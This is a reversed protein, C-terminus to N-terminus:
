QRVSHWVKRFVSTSEEDCKRKQMKRIAPAAIPRGAVTQWYGELGGGVGRCTSAMGRSRIVSLRESLIFPAASRDMSQAWIPRGLVPPPPFSPRDGCYGALRGNTGPSGPAIPSANGGYPPPELDRVHFRRGAVANGIARPPHQARPRHPLPTSIESGIRHEPDERSANRANDSHQRQRENGGPENRNRRKRHGGYRQRQGPRLRENVARVLAIAQRNRSQRNAFKLKRRLRPRRRGRPRLNRGTAIGSEARDRRRQQRINEPTTDGSCCRASLWQLRAAAPVRRGRFGIGGSRHKDRLFATAAEGATCIRCNGGSRAGSRVGAITGNSWLRAHGFAARRVQGV